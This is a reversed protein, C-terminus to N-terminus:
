EEEALAAEGEPAEDHDERGAAELPEEAEGAAEEEEEAEQYFLIRQCTPCCNLKDGKLVENVQQPPLTMHCGQCVGGVLAAVALGGRRALLREYRQMYKADVAAAKEAREAEIKKKESALKKTEKAADRRAGELEAEESGCRTELEGAESDVQELQEIFQLAREDADKAIKKCDEISKLLAQHERSTQVMLMKNQADKMRALADDHEDQNEKQKETLRESKIRLAALKDRKAQIDQERKAVAEECRAIEHDLRAIEHWDGLYRDLDFSKAVSNDVKPTSACGAMIAAAMAM